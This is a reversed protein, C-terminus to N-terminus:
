ASSGPLRSGANDPAVPQAWAWRRVGGDDLAVLRLGTALATLAEGELPFRVPGALDLLVARAGEGLAARAADPVSVPVPRAGADWRSLADLSTFALLATSGDPATTLVTAMVTVKEPRSDPGSDPGSDPRREPGTERGTPEAAEQGVAVVPVLVRADQAAAVVGVWRSPEEAYAALADVLGADAAGEDGAFGPDPIPRSM